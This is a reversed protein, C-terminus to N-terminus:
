LAARVRAVFAETLTFHFLEGNARTLTYAHDGNADTTPRVVEGSTPVFILDEDIVDYIGRVRWGDPLIMLFTKDKYLYLWTGDELEVSALLDDAEDTGSGESESSEGESDGETEIYLNGISSLDPEIIRGDGTLSFLEPHDGPTTLAGFSGNDNLAVSAPLIDGRNIITGNNVLKSGVPPDLTIRKTQVTPAEATPEIPIIAETATGLYINGTNRLTADNELTGPIMVIDGNNRLTATDYINGDRDVGNYLAGPYVNQQTVDDKWSVQIGQHYAYQGKDPDNSIILDDFKGNNVLTGLNYLKGNVVLTGNNTLKAGPDITLEGCDKDSEVVQQQTDAQYPKGEYGEITIIGNNVIEGGARLDLLGNNLIDPKAPTTSGGTTPTTTAGDWEIELQCTKDIILKGGQDIVFQANNGIAMEAGTTNSRDEITLWANKLTFGDSYTQTDTTTNNAVQIDFSNVDLTRKKLKKESQGELTLQQTVPVESILKVTQGCGKDSPSADQPQDYYDDELSKELSWYTTEGKDEVATELALDSGKLLFRSINEVATKAADFFKALVKKEHDPDTSQPDYKLEPDYDGTGDVYLQVPLDGDPADTKGADAGAALKGTSFMIIDVYPKGSTKDVLDDLLYAGTKSGLSDIFGKDNDVMGLGPILALDKEVKLHLYQPVEATADYFKSVDLRSIVYTGDFGTLKKHKTGDSAEEEVIKFPYDSYPDVREKLTEYNVPGLRNEFGQAAGQIIAPSETTPKDLNQDAITPMGITPADAKGASNPDLAGTSYVGTYVEGADTKYLAADYDYSVKGAQQAAKEEVSQDVASESASDNASEAVSDNVPEAASDNAPEVVSDNTPEAVSDNVPEATSDNAPEAASGEAQARASSRSNRASSRNSYGVKYWRNVDSVKVMGGEALACFPLTNVALLALLVLLGLRRLM